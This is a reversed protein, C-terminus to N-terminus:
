VNMLREDITKKLRRILLEPLSEVILIFLRNLLGGPIYEAKKQFMKRVAKSALRDPPIIIGLRIGLKMYRPALGYLGTAVAGPCITTISVNNYIENRMARSFCRLYSKTANYLTIGPMMMRAAISSMNLIYGKRNELIMQEAFLRCLLSPTLVHLKLSTEILDPATDTINRFFFIGANNVLIEVKINNKVCYDFIKQASDRQSLDLYLPVARVHFENGTEEATEAIKEEENSVLLLPYGRGALERSIALGIGSSAGTVLAFNKGENM